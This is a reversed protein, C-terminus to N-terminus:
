PRPQKWSTFYSHGHSCDVVIPRWDISIQHFLTLRCFHLCIAHHLRSRSLSLLPRHTVQSANLRFTLEVHLTIITLATKHNTTRWLHSIKTHCVPSTTALSFRNFSLVTFRKFLLSSDDASANLPRLKSLAEAPRLAAWKFSHSSWKPNLYLFESCPELFM